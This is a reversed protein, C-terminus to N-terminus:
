SLVDIPREAAERSKKKLDAPNKEKKLKTESHTLWWGIVAKADVDKFRWPVNKKLYALKGLIM